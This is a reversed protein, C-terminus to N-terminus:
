PTSRHYTLVETTAFGAYRRRAILAFGRPGPRAFARLRVLQDDLVVYANDGPAAQSWMSFPAMAMVGAAILGGIRGVTERGIAYVVPVTATGLVASPLRIWVTPDGLKASAWALLLYLPPSNEDGTHVTNLVAGFSRGFIDRYTGVEDGVISQHVQAFRLVFAVVTLAAVAALVVEPSRAGSRAHDPAGLPTRAAAVSM